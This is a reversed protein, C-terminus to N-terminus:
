YNSLVIKCNEAEEQCKELSFRDRAEKSNGGHKYYAVHRGNIIAMAISGLVKHSTTGGWALGEDCTIRFQEKAVEKMYEIASDYDYGEVVNYVFDGTKSNYVFVKHVIPLNSVQEQVKNREAERKLQEQQRYYAEEAEAEARRKDAEHAAMANWNHWQQSNVQYPNAFVLNGITLTLTLIAIKINRM